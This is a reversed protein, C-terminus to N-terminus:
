SAVALELPSWKMFKDNFTCKFKLKDVPTTNLFCSRLFKSIQINNVCAHGLSQRGDASFVEYIDPQNTKQLNLIDDKKVEKPPPPIPIPISQKRVPLSVTKYKNRVHKVLTNDFNFLINKFKIFLPTFQIGRCTYTLSPLFTNVMDDLEGYQFYRKVQFNCVNQSDPSYNNSLIDYCRNIRKVLNVNQMEKGSDGIIDNILYIWEDNSDKIMEGDFLTNSFLNDDFWFKVIVMRPYFYGQQIKKDIFICQNVNNYKTLYLFYPNGNSRLAMLFPNSNLTTIMSDNFPEHHKQIIKKKFNLEIEDLIRKKLEDSKINFGLHGCFSIEGLRM